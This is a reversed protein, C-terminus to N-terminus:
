GQCNSQAANWARDHIDIFYCTSTEPNYHWGGECHSNIPIDPTEDPPNIPGSLAPRQFHIIYKIMFQISEM